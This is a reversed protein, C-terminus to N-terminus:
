AYHVKRHHSDCLWLVKLQNEKAYGLYHHGQVKTEGCEICFDKKINGVKVHYTLNYHAKRREVDKNRYTYKYETKKETTIRSRYLKTKDKNRRQWALKTPYLRKKNLQYYIKGKELIKERNKLYYERNANGM